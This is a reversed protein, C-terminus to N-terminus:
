NKLPNQTRAITRIEFYGQSEPLRPSFIEVRVTISYEARVVRTKKKKKKANSRMIPECNKDIVVKIKKLLMNRKEAMRENQRKLRQLEAEALKKIERVKCPRPVAPGSKQVGKKGGGV